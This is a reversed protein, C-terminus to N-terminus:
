APGLVCAVQRGDPTRGCVASLRVSLERSDPSMGHRDPRFTKRPSLRIRWIGPQGGPRKVTFAFPGPRDLRIVLPEGDGARVVLEQPVIPALAPLDGRVEVSDIEGGQVSLVAEVGMWADAYVGDVDIALASARGAARTHEFVDLTRAAMASRSFRRARARGREVLDRARQPDRVVDALARALDAPDMPDFLRAADGAVEPLSAANAAV